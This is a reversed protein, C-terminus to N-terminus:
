RRVSAFGDDDTDEEIMTLQAMRKGACVCFGPTLVCM